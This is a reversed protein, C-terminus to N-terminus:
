VSRHSLRAFSSAPFPLDRNETPTPFINAYVGSKEEGIDAARNRSIPEPTEMNRLKALRLSKRGLRKKRGANLGREKKKGEGKDRSARRLKRIRKKRRRETEKERLKGGGV